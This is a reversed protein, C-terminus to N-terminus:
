KKERAGFIDTGIRLWTAGELVAAELDHSTGMSLENLLHWGLVEPSANRRIEELLERSERFYGRQIDLSDSLPPMVMIGLVRLTRLDKISDFLKVLAERSLGEKTSEQGVNFQLFIDQAQTIKQALIQRDLAEVLSQRDVSHIVAFKGIVAKVKNSQLHGILHWRVSPVDNQKQLAEQVYNEGFDIQGGAVADRVLSVPQLKSVALLNVESSPRGARECARDIRQHVSRLREVVSM